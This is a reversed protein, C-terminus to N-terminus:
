YAKQFVIESLGAVEQNTPDIYIRVSLNFDKIKVVREATWNYEGATLQFTGADIGEFEVKQWSPLELDGVQVRIRYVGNQVNIEYDYYNEPNTSQAKTHAFLTKRLRANGKFGSGAWEVKDAVDWKGLMWGKGSYSEFALTNKQNQNVPAPRGFEIKGKSFYKSLSFLQQYYLQYLQPFFNVSNAFRDNYAPITDSKIVLLQLHGWKIDGWCTGILEGRVLKQGPRVEINKTYLHNYLYYIGPNSESKLLVCAEQETQDPNKTEIWEVESNEIAVIWHKELGRADHLDIGIGEYSQIKEPGTSSNDEGLYSFMHSDEEAKWLFGDNYSVPFVYQFPDLMNKESKSVCLLVDKNLLGHVAKDDTLNKVNINDAVFIRIDSSGLSLSRKSVKLWITDKGIRIENYHNFMSLVEIGMKNFVISDGVNLNYYSSNGWQFDPKSDEQARTFQCAFILFVISIIQRL